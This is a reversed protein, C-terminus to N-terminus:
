TCCEGSVPKELWCSKCVETKKELNQPARDCCEAHVVKGEEYAARDGPEIDDGCAPCVSTKRAEFTGVMGGSAFERSFLTKM